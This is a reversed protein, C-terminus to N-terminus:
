FLLAKDVALAMLGAAMEIKLIKSIGSTNNPFEKKLLKSYWVVHLPIICFLSIGAYIIGFHGSIVPIFLLPLYLLAALTLLFKLLPIPLSASTVIGTAKDGTCDQLDKIIERCFNLLFALGAPVLLITRQEFPLAPYLLAYGVLIAVLLNGALPTKKLYLSYILLLFIPFLTAKVYFLSVAVAASVSLVILFVVFVWASVTSMENNALPRHPHNIRDSSIDKLDNIVNGFGTASMAAIMLLVTSHWEVTQTIWSGLFVAIATM